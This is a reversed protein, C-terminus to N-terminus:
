KFFFSVFYIILIYQSEKKIFHTQTQSITTNMSVPKPTKLLNNRVNIVLSRLTEIFEEYHRIIDSCFSM